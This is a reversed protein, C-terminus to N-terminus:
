SPETDRTTAYSMTHEHLYDKLIRMAKPGIGHLTALEDETVRQLDELTKINMAELANTAPRGINTPLPTSMLEIM